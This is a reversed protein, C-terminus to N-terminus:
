PRGKLANRVGDILTSAIDNSLARTLGEAPDATDFCDHAYDVTRKRGNMAYVVRYSTRQNLFDEQKHVVCEVPTGTVRVADVIRATVAAEMERLLRVSEDTPARKETVEVKRTRQDGPENLGWM